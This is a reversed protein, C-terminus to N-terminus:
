TVLYPQLYASISMGRVALYGSTSSVRFIIERFYDQDIMTDGHTQIPPYGDLYQPLYLPLVLPASATPVTNLTDWDSNDMSYEITAVAHSNYFEIESKNGLKRSGAEGFTMGRTAISTPIGVGSDNTASADDSYTRTASSNFNHGRRWLYVRGNRDGFVLGTFLATEAVSNPLAIGNTAQLGTYPYFRGSWEGIWCKNSTDFAVTIAGGTVTKASLIVTNEHFVMSIESPQTIDIQKIKDEIPLSIPLSVAQEQGQLTRSLLRVGDRSMFMVDSGVRLTASQSLAGNANEVTEVSFGGASTQTIGSVVFVRNEKFVAIRDGTWEVIATIPSSDGGIRIANLITDFNSTLFDGVYLTDPNSETVAFLRGRASILRNIGAPASVAGSTPVTTVASGDWYKLQGASSGDIFYLKDAVTATYVRNGSTYASSAGNVWGTNWSSLYRLNGGYFAVLQTTSTNRYSALGSIYSSVGTSPALVLGLRTHALGNEDLEVNVLSSCQNEGLIRAQTNSDEGGSFQRQGDFVLPTDLAEDFIIPM